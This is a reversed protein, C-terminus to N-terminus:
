SIIDPANGNEASVSIVVRNPLCIISEGSRKIPKHAACIGDPCSAESVYATGNDIILVNLGSFDDGSRIDATINESLSYTAYPKGDVSVTVTVGDESTVFLVACVIFIVALLGFVFIIDNKLRLKGSKATFETKKSNM